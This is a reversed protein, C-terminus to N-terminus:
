LGRWTDRRPDQAALCCTSGPLVPIRTGSSNILKVDTNDGPAKSLDTAKGFGGFGAAPVLDPNEHHQNGM